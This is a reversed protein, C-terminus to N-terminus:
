TRHNDASCGRDITVKKPTSNSSVFFAVINSRTPLEGITVCVCVCVCVFQFASHLPLYNICELIAFPEYCTLNTMISPYFAYLGIRFSVLIFAPPVKVKTPPFPVLLTLTLLDPARWHFTKALQVSLHHHSSAEFPVCV